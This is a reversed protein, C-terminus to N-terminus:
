FSKKLAYFFDSCIESNKGYKCTEDSMCNGSLSSIDSPSWVSKQPLLEATSILKQWEEVQMGTICEMSVTTLRPFLYVWCYTLSTTFAYNFQLCLCKDHDKLGGNLFIVVSKSFHTPSYQVIKFTHLVLKQSVSM